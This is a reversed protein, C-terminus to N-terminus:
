RRGPPRPKDAAAVVPAFRSACDNRGLRIPQTAERLRGSRTDGCRIRRGLYCDKALVSGERALRIFPARIGREAILEDVTEASLLDSFDRPLVEARSLLPKRGWYQRAFTEPDTAVCRSLMSYRDLPETPVATKVKPTPAATRLAKAARPETPAATKVKPTPAATGPGEGGATGDAGGDQGEPNSGGDAPGEGGTGSTTIDDDDLAM